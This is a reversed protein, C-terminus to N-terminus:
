NELFEAISDPVLIHLQDLLDDDAMKKGVIDIGQLPVVRVTGRAVVIDPRSPGHINVTIDVAIIPNASLIAVYM